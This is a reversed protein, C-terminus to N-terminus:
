SSSGGKKALQHAQRLPEPIRYNKTCGLVIDIAEALTIRNGVSVFLPRVDTRTRLAAGITEGEPNKLFSFSGKEAGPKENKGFLRTKACGITPKKLLVGLHTALGMSRQHVIGQGDFLILDPENKLSQFCKMLVPGERFALFSPIYPFTAPLEGTRTEIIELMRNMVVVSGTAKKDRFSADAGAILEPRKELPRIEIKAQLRKQLAAANEPLIDWSHLKYVKM